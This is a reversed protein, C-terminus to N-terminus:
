GGCTATLARLAPLAEGDLMSIILMNQLVVLACLGWTMWTTAM